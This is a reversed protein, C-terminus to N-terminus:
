AAVAEQRRRPFCLELLYALPIAAMLGICFYKAASIGFAKLRPEWDLQKVRPLEALEISRRASHPISEALAIKLKLNRIAERVEDTSSFGHGSPDPGGLAIWRGLDYELSALGSKMEPLGSCGYVTYLLISNTAKSAEEWPVGTVRLDYYPTSIRQDWTMNSRLRVAAKATDMHWLAPLGAEEAAQGLVEPTLLEDLSSPAGPSATSSRLIMVPPGPPVLYVAGKVEQEILLRDKHRFFAFGVCLLPLIWIPHGWRRVIFAPLWRNFCPGDM